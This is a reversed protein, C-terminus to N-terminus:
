GGNNGGAAGTPATEQGNTVSRWEQAARRLPERYPYAAIAFTAGVLLTLWAANLINTEVTWWTYLPFLRGPWTFAADNIDFPNVALTVAGRDASRFLLFTVLLSYAAAAGAAARWPVTLRAAVVALVVAFLPFVAILMRGPFWWGMMTVSVFAAVVLQTVILAVVLNGAPLVRRVLPLAPLVCLLVPAWRGIGFRRDIFLGWIRYIRNSFSIHSDIVSATSAGDYVLNGNYPTLAGFTSLHWWGYAVASLAGLSAFAIREDRGAQWVYFGAIVLGLPVYKMGLWALASLIAALALARALGPRLQLALLAVIVCLAAPMEPYVETAYVFAPATAGTVAVASWSLWKRGTQKAAFVFTLAFTLAAVLLLELQAGELGGLAFGPLLLVSLGPQHPSLLRGDPL